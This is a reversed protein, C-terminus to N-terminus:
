QCQAHIRFSGEYTQFTQTQWIFINDSMNITTMVSCLLVMDLENRTLLSAQARIEIYYELPFQTGCPKGDAKKCGCTLRVFEACLQEEETINNM